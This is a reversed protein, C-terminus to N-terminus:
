IACSNKFSQSMAAEGASPINVPGHLPVCSLTVLNLVANVVQKSAKIRYM